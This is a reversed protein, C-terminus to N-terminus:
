PKAREGPRHRLSRGHPLHRGGSDLRHHANRGEDFGNRLGSRSPLIWAMLLGSGSIL